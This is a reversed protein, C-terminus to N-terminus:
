GGCEGRMGSNCRNWGRAAVGMAVAEGAAPVSLQVSCKESDGHNLGAPVWGCALVEGLLPSFAFGGSFSAAAQFSVQCVDDISCEDKIELVEVFVLDGNRSSSLPAGVGGREQAQCPVHGARERERRLDQRFVRASAASLAVPRIGRVM